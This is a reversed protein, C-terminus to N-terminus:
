IRCQQRSQTLLEAQLPTRFDGQLHIGGTEILLLQHRHEAPTFRM